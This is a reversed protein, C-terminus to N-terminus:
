VPHHGQILGSRGTRDYRPLLWVIQGTQGIIKKKKLFFFFILSNSLSAALCPRGENWTQCSTKNCICILMHKVDEVGNSNDDVDNGKQM